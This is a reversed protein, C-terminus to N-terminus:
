ISLRYIYTLLLGFVPIVIPVKVSVVKTFLSESSLLLLQLKEFYFTSVFMCVVGHICVFSSVM